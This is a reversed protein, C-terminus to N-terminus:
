LYTEFKQINQNITNVEDLLSAEFDAKNAELAASKENIEKQFNEILHSNENLTKTLEKIKEQMEINKKLLSECQAKRTGIEKQEEASHAQMFASKEKELVGIYQNATSILRAKDVKQARFVLGINKIKTEESQTLDGAMHDFAEVFELYDPGPLNAAKM